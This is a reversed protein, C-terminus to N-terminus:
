VLSFRHQLNVMIVFVRHLPVVVLQLREVGMKTRRSHHDSDNLLHQGCNVSIRVAEDPHKSLCCSVSGLEAAEGDTLQAVTVSKAVVNGYCRCFIFCIGKRWSLLSMIEPGLLRPHIVQSPLMALPIRHCGTRGQDIPM